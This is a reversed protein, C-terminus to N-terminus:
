RNGGVTVIAIQDPHLLTKAVQNVQEPTVTELKALELRIEGRHNDWLRDFLIIRTLIDPNAM